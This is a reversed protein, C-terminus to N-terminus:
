SSVAYTAERKKLSDRRILWGLLWLACYVVVLFLYAGNREPQVDQIQITWGRNQTMGLYQEATIGIDFVKTELLGIQLNTWTVSRTWSVLGNNVTVRYPRDPTIFTTPTVAFDLRYNTGSWWNHTVQSTLRVSLLNDAQQTDLTRFSYLCVGVIVTVLLGVSLAVAMWHQRTYRCIARATKFGFWLTMGMLVILLAGLVVRTITKVMM